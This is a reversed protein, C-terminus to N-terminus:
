CVCDSRYAQNVMRRNSHSHNSMPGQARASATRKAHLLQQSLATHRTVGRGEEATGRGMHACVSCCLPQTTAHTHAFRVTCVSASDCHQLVHKHASVHATHTHIAVYSTRLSQLPPPPPYFICLTISVSISVSNVCVSSTKCWTMYGMATIVKCCIYVQKYAVSGSYVQVTGCMLQSTNVHM